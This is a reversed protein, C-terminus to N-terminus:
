KAPRPEPPPRYATAQVSPDAMLARWEDTVVRDADPETSLFMDFWSLPRHQLNARCPRLDAFGLRVRKAEARKLMCGFCLIERTGALRAWSADHLTPALPGKPSRCDDCRIKGFRGRM